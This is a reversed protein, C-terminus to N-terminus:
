KVEGRLLKRKWYRLQIIRKKQWSPEEMIEYNPCRKGTIIEWLCSKCEDGGAMECMPCGVKDEKGQYIAIMKDITKIWQKIKRKTM